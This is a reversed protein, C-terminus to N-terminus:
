GYICYDNLQYSDRSCHLRLGPLRFSDISWSCDFSTEIVKSFNDLIKNSVKSFNIYAKFTSTVIQIVTYQLIAARCFTFLLPQKSSLFHIFARCFTFLREVSLSYFHSNVRCFTFLHAVSQEVSYSISIQTLRCRISHSREGCSATCGARNYINRAVFENIVHLFGSKDDIKISMSSILPYIYVRKEVSLSYKKSYVM